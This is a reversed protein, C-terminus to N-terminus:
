MNDRRGGRRGKERERGRRVKAKEGDVKKERKTSRKEREEGRSAIELALKERERTAGKGSGLRSDLLSIQEEPSRKARDQQLQEARARREDMVVPGSRIKRRSM